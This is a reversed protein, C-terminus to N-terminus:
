QCNNLYILHLLNSFQMISTREDSLEDRYITNLIRQYLESNKILGNPVVINVKPHKEEMWIGNDEFYTSPESIIEFVCSMAMELNISFVMAKLYENDDSDNITIVPNSILSYMLCSAIIFSDPKGVIRTNCIWNVNNSFPILYELSTDIGVNISENKFKNLAEKVHRDVLDIYYKDQAKLEELRKNKNETRQKEDKDAAKGILMIGAITYLVCIAGLGLKMGLSPGEMAYAISGSILLMWLIFAFWGWNEKFFQKLNRKKM